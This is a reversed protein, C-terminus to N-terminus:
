RTAFPASVPQVGVQLRPEPRQLQALVDDARKVLPPELNAGVHALEPSLAHAALDHPAACLV